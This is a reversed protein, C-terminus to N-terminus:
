VAYSPAMVSSFVCIRSAMLAAISSFRTIRKMFPVGSCGRQPNEARVTPARCDSPVGNAATSMRGWGAIRSCSLASDFQGVIGWSNTSPSSTPPQSM